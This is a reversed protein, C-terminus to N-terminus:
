TKRIAKHQQLLLMWHHRRAQTYIYQNYMPRAHVSANAANMERQRMRHRFAHSVSVGCFSHQVYPTHHAKETDMENHTEREKGNTRTHHHPGVFTNTFSERQQRGRSTEGNAGSDKEGVPLQGVSITSLM